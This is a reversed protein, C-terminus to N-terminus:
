IFIFAAGPRPATKIKGRKRIWEESSVGETAVYFNM